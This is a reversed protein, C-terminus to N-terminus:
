GVLIIFVSLDVSFVLFVSQFASGLMGSSKFKWFAIM